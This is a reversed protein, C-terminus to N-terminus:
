GASIKELLEERINTLQGKISGDYIVDGIRVVLGGILAPDSKIDMDVEKKTLSKLRTRLEDQHSPSFSNSSIVYAKVKNEREYLLAEFYSKIEKFYKLRDKEILLDFFRQSAKSFGSKESLANIVGKKEELSFVPSILLSRMERSSQLMSYLGEIDRRIGEIEEKKLSEMLAKAYRKALVNGIM